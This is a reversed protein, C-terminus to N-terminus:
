DLRFAISESVSARLLSPSGMFILFSLPCSVAASARRFSDRARSGELELLPFAERDERDAERDTSCGVSFTTLSDEVTILEALSSLLTVLNGVYGFTDMHFGITHYIYIYGM